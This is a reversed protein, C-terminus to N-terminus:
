GATTQEVPPFLRGRKIARVKLVRGVNKWKKEPTDGFEVLAHAPNAPKSDTKEVPDAWATLQSAAIDEVSLGWVGCSALGFGEPPLATAIKYSCDASTMSSRDASLCGEDVARWPYFAQSSPEGDDVLWGPDVQRFLVEDPVTLRAGNKECM